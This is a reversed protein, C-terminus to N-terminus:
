GLVQQQECPEVLLGEARPRDAGDAAPRPRVQRFQGARGRRPVGAGPNGDDGFARRLAQHRAVQVAEAPQEDIQEVVGDAVRLRPHGHGNAAVALPRHEDHGVVSRPYGGGVGFAGEVPEGPQVGGAVAVAGLGAPGTEAQGDDPRGGLGVFAVRV